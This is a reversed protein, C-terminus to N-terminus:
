YMSPEGGVFSPEFLAESKSTPDSIGSQNFLMDFVEDSEDIEHPMREDKLNSGACFLVCFDMM